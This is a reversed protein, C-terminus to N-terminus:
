RRAVGCEGGSERMNFWRSSLFHFRLSLELDSDTSKSTSRPGYGQVDVAFRSWRHLPDIPLTPRSPLTM